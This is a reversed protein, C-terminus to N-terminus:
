FAYFSRDAKLQTLTKKALIDKIPFHKKKWPNAFSKSM